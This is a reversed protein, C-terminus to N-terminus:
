ESAWLDAWRRELHALQKGALERSRSQLRFRQRHTRIREREDQFDAPEVHQFATLTAALSPLPPIVEWAGERQILRKTLGKQGTTRLLRRQLDRFESERDNNTRPLDPIDYTHFLGPAYSHTVKIIDAAWAALRPHALAQAPLTELHAELTQRVETGTADPHHAPELIAAIEQLWTAAQDLLDYEFVFTPLVRQLGQFLRLLQPEPHIQLLRALCDQLLELREFLEIGALRFPPRAKLTLLYRLHLQVAQRIATSEATRTAQADETAPLLPSPVSGTITLVGAAEGTEQRILDGMEARIAQRLDVKLAEDTKAVSEGANRLYHIQCWAQKAQPFVAAVAPVLGRQKDSLVAQVPVELEALPRLFNTFTAEDQQALWGSRLTLGTRLERVVWLQPEGGEPALGDLSLLLGQSGVLQRMRAWNQREQCALLALYREHYLVRVETESICVQPLGKQHIEGFTKEEIQRLWGIQAIVDYGYRCGRPASHL